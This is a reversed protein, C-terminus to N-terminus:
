MTQKALLWTLLRDAFAVGAPRARRRARQAFRRCSRVALAAAAATWASRSPPSCPPRRRPARAARPACRRPPPAWPGSGPSPGSRGPSSRSSPPSPSSRSRCPSCARPWRSARTSGPPSPRRAPPAPRGRRLARPARGHDRAPAGSAPVLGGPHRAHRHNRLAWKSIAIEGPAVGAEALTVYAGREREEAMVYLEVVCGAFAPASASAAVLAFADGEAASSGPRAPSWAGSSRPSSRARPARCSRRPTASPTSSTARSSRAYTESHAQEWAGM